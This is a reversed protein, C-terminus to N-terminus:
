ENVWRRDTDSMTLVINSNDNINKSQDKIRGQNTKSIDKIHRQYLCRTSEIREMTAAYGAKMMQTHQRYRPFLLSKLVPKKIHSPVMLCYDHISANYAFQDPLSEIAVTELDSLPEETYPNILPFLPLGDESDFLYPVEYVLGTSLLIEYAASWDDYPEIFHEDAILQTTGDFAYITFAALEAIKQSREFRRCMFNFGGENVIDQRWYLDLMLRLTDESSTQRILKLPSCEGALTGTVFSHPIWAVTDAQSDALTFLPHKGGRTKTLYGGEILNAETKMAARVSLGAYNTVSNRSWSTKKGLGSRGSCQTIFHCATNLGYADIIKMVIDYEIAFFGETKNTMKGVRQSFIESIMAGAIQTHSIM